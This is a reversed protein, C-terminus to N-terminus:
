YQNTHNKFQNPNIVQVSFNELFDNTEKQLPSKLSNTTIIEKLYNNLQSVLSSQSLAHDIMNLINTKFENFDNECSPDNM